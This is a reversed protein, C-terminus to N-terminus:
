LATNPDRWTAAWPWVLQLPSQVNERAPHTVEPGRVLSPPALPYQIPLSKTAPASTPRTVLPTWVVAWTEEHPVRSGELVQGQCACIQRGQQARKLTYTTPILEKM